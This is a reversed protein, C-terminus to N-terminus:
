YNIFKTGFNLKTAVFNSIINSMVLIKQNEAQKRNM